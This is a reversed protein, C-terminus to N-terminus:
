SDRGFARKLPQLIGGSEKESAPAAKPRPVLPIWRPELSQSRISDAIKSVANAFGKQSIDALYEITNAASDVFQLSVANFSCDVFNPMEGGAYVLAVNNFTCSVYSRGDVYVDESEYTINQIASTTTPQM